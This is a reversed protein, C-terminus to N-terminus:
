TTQSGFTASEKVGEHCQNLRPSEYKLPLRRMEPLKSVPRWYLIVNRLPKGEVLPWLSGLSTDFVSAM